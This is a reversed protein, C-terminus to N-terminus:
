IRGFINIRCLLLKPTVWSKFLVIITRQQFAVPEFFKQKTGGMTPNDNDIPEPDFCPDIELPNDCFVNIKANTESLEDSSSPGKLLKVGGPKAEQELPFDFDWHKGLAVRLTDKGSYPLYTGGLYTPLGAAVQGQKEHGGPHRLLDLFIADDVIIKKKGVKDTM